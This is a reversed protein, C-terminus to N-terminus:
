AQTTRSTPVVTVPKAIPVCLWYIGLYFACPLKSRYDLFNVAHSPPMLTGGARVMDTNRAIRRDV